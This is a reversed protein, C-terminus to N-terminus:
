FNAASTHSLPDEINNDRKWWQQRWRETSKAVEEAEFQKMMEELRQRANLVGPAKKDAREAAAVADEWTLAGSRFEGFLHEASRSGAEKAQSMSEFNGAAATVGADITAQRARDRLSSQPAPRAAALGGRNAPRAGGQNLGRLLGSLQTSTPNVMDEPVAGGAAAIQNRLGRQRRQNIEAIQEPSMRSRNLDYRVGVQPDPVSGMGASESDGGVASSGVPVGGLGGALGGSKPPVAVGGVVRIKGPGEANEPGVYRGTGNGTVSAYGGGYSNQPTYQSTDQTNYQRGGLAWISDRSGYQREHEMQEAAAANFDQMNGYLRGALGGPTYPTFTRTYGAQPTGGQWPQGERSLGRGYRREAITGPSYYSSGNQAVAAAQAQNQANVAEMAPLTQAGDYVPPQLLGPRRSVQRGRRYGTGQDFLPASYGMLGPM